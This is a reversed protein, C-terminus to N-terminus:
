TLAIIKEKVLKNSLSYLEWVPVNLSEAIELLSKEGDCLSIFDMMLNVQLNSEKTSLNPYLGRKGMQPECLFNSKFIKNNELVEIAKRIAWYGGELGLPTVVNELDDLSTHYEPYEGYKTRIISAVPLDIGPSCYQREDSGRDLWTYSVFNPDTWKAQGMWSTQWILSTERDETCRTGVATPPLKFTAFAERSWADLWSASIPMPQNRPIPTMWDTSLARQPM